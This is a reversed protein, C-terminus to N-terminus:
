LQFVIAAVALFTGIKSESFANFFIDINDLVNEHIDKHM